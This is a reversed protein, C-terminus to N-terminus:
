CLQRGNQKFKRMLVNENSSAVRSWTLQQSQWQTHTMIYRLITIYPCTVWKGLPLYTHGWCLPDYGQLYTRLATSYDAHPLKNHSHSHVGRCCSLVFYYWIISVICVIEASLVLLIALLALSNCSCIILLIHFVHSAESCRFCPMALRLVETCLLTDTFLAIHANWETTFSPGSKMCRNHWSMIYQFLTARHM